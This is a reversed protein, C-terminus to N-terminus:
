VVSYLYKKAICMSFFLALRLRRKRSKGLVRYIEGDVSDFKIASQYIPLSTVYDGDLCDLNSCSGNYLLVQSDFSANVRLLFREGNGEVTYWLGSASELGAGYGCIEVRSESIFSLSTDGSIPPGDILLKTANECYDNDLSEMETLEITFAGANNEFGHVLMEYLLLRNIAISVFHVAEELSLMRGSHATSKGLAYYISGDISDIEVASRYFSTSADADDNGGICELNNCSGNYVLLQSDYDADVDLFLRKGNGNFTFWLGGTSGLGSGGCVELAFEPISATTDGATAAGDLALTIAGECMDNPLPEFEELTIDFAGRAGYVYVLYQEGLISDFPTTLTTNFDGSERVCELAGCEGKYVSALLNSSLQLFGGTGSFSYFV